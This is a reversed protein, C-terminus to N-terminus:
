VGDIRGEGHTMISGRMSAASLAGSWLIRMRRM